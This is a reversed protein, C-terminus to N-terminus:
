FFSSPEPEAQEFVMPERNEKSAWHLPPSVSEIRDIARGILASAERLGDILEQNPNM